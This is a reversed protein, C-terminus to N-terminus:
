ELILPTLDVFRELVWDPNSLAIDEDYNYGYTLGVARVGARQAALIDNKSDGVMLMQSKKLGWREVLHNIPYPEPKTQPLEDGCLVYEFFHSIGLHTLLPQTFPAAKNTVVAMHVGAEHLQELVDIVGAYLSCYHGLTEHYADYFRTVQEGHANVAPDIGCHALAREVLKPIGNGIWAAVLKEDVPTIDYNALVMNMAAALDAVSDVLTGDLDFAVAEFKRTIM